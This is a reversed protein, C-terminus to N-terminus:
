MENRVKEVKMVKLDARWNEGLEFKYIEIEPQVTASLFAFNYHFSLTPAALYILTPENLIEADGFVKARQLSGARRASEIKRWYDLAQYIMERDPEVKLEIVILRGDKRLALLDIKDASHRFQHHLPSLILNGDLLKVNERLMAELWAEPALRFVAHRRNPSDSRRYTELTELLGFFDARTNEDLIRREREIGFWAKEADGIKRVRAFPLGFFRLTEGHKTFVVDIKEPFLKIIEQATRSLNANEPLTIKPPKERWLDKIELNRKSNIREGESKANPRSIEKVHIKSKWTESLLAHLKRLNKYIKSEALIWVDSIPKKRRTQLKALWLIANTLLTEPTAVGCVDALAAVPKKASDEFIIHAFRGNEENLAVRVLKSASNERVILAAIQNARELRALEVAESLEGASVRPVFKIRDLERGFNRTVRLTLNKNEIKYDAVRWLQFGTEDLFGCIIKGKELTIEIEATQLAFSKGSAHVLLWENNSGLTETIEHLATELNM